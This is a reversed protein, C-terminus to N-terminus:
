QAFAEYDVDLMAVVDALEPLARWDAAGPQDPLLHDRTFPPKRRAATVAAMSAELLALGREVHWQFLDFWFHQQGASDVEINQIALYAMHIAHTATERQEPDVTYRGQDVGTTYEVLAAAYPPLEGDEVLCQVLHAAVVADFDPNTHAVIVPEWVVGALDLGDKVREIWPRVLHGYVLEPHGYVLEASSGGLGDEGHQDLVGAALRGGVDLYVADTTTSATSGPGVFAYRWRIDLGLSRAGKRIAGM